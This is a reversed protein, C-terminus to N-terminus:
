NDIIYYVIGIRVIINIFLFHLNQFYKKDVNCIKTFYVYINLLYRLIKTEFTFSSSNIKYKSFFLAGLFRNYYKHVSTKM